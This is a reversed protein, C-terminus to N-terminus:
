HSFVGSTYEVFASVSVFLFTISRKLSLYLVVEKFKNIFLKMLFEKLDKEKSCAAVTLKGIKDPVM